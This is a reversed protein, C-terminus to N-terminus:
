RILKFIRNWWISEWGTLDPNNSWGIIFARGIIHDEPVLGWARSDISHGRNDGLMYYYNKRCVYETSYVGNIFVSDNRILLRNNEYVEILRKYKQITNSTLILTDNKEPVYICKYNYKNTIRNESLEFRNTNAEEWAFLNINNIDEKLKNGNILVMGKDVKVTDGPLGMCRKVYALRFSLPLWAKDKLNDSKTRKLEYYNKVPESLLITDGLPFHFVMVDGRTIKRFGPTNIDKGFIRIVSGYGTKDVGIWDGPQITPVM